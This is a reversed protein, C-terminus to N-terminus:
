WLSLLLLVDLGHVHVKNNEVGADLGNSNVQPAAREGAISGPDACLDKLAGRADYEAVICVGRAGVEHALNHVAHAHLGPEPDVISAFFVFIFEGRQEEKAGGRESAIADAGRRSIM